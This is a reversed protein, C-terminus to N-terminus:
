RELVFGDSKRVVRVAASGAVDIVVRDLTM